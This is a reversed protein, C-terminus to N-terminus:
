RGLPIRILVVPPDKHPPEETEEEEDPVLMVYLAYGVFAAAIAVGIIAKYNIGKGSEDELEIEYTELTDALAPGAAVAPPPSSSLDSLDLLRGSSFCSAEVSGGPSGEPSALAAQVGSVFTGMVLVTLLTKSCGKMM